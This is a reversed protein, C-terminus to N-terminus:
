EAGPSKVMISVGLTECQQEPAKGLITIESQIACQWLVGTQSSRIRKDTPGIQRGIHNPIGVMGTLVSGFSACPPPPPPPCFALALVNGTLAFISCGIPCGMLPMVSDPTTVLGASKLAQSSSIEFVNFNLESDQLGRLYSPHYYWPHYCVHARVHMSVHMWGDMHSEFSMQRVLGLENWNGLGTYFM